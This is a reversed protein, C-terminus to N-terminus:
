DRTPILLRYVGTACIIGFFPFMAITLFGANPQLSMIINQAGTYLTLAIAGGVAVETASANRCKGLLPYIIITVLFFLGVQSLIHLFPPLTLLPKLIISWVYMFFFFIVSLILVNLRDIKVVQEPPLEETIGEKKRVYLLILIWFIAYVAFAIEMFAISLLLGWPLSAVQFIAAMTASLIKSLLGMIFYSKKSNVIFLALFCASSLHIAIASLREVFGSLLVGGVMFELSFPISISSLFIVGLTIAEGCGFGLGFGVISKWDRAEKLAPHYKLFLFASLVEIAELITTNIVMLPINTYFIPWNLNQITAIFFKVSVACFWSLWGLLYINSSVRTRRNWFLIPLIGAIFYAAPLMLYIVQM